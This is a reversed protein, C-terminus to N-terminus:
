GNFGLFEIFEVETFFNTSLKATFATFIARFDIKEFLAKCIKKFNAMKKMHPLDRVSDL